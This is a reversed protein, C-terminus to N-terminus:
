EWEKGDEWYMYGDEDEDEDEWFDDDLMNRNACDECLPRNPIYSVNDQGIANIDRGCCSCILAM